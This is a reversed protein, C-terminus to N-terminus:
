YLIVLIVGWSDITCKQDYPPSPINIGSKESIFIQLRKIFQTEERNM